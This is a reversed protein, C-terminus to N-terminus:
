DDDCGPVEIGAVGIYPIYGLDACQGEMLVASARVWEIGAPPIGPHPQLGSKRMIEAWLPMAGTAGTLGMPGNDDRGVWVVGAYRDGFGAFWSDRLDNTTGTKGPYHGSRRLMGAIARGTGSTTAGILAHTILFAAAPDFVGDMTLEHRVLGRGDATVAERITTLPVRFGGNALTQYIQAVERPSLDAAGLLLSPLPKPARAMGAQRLAAAVREVGLDMGLRVTALNYSRSLAELLTVTGHSRRDYNEPHWIKGGTQRLSLPGDDLRTLLTYRSPESLAAVYAFPKVLSGIPRRAALARNFGGSGAGRGGGVAVIEGSTYDVIVAASQLTGAKIKRGSELRELVSATAAIVAEQTDVELSTFIRWGSTALQQVSYTDELEARVLDMFAPYRERSWRPKDVVDLERNTAAALEQATLFGSEAMLKLVLDRRERARGPNRHPNYLSAGRVLAVLLAVQHVRLEGLPRGFYYEAATGFGHVATAGQQGLYVENVYARLIQEKGLRRELLMAMVAENVKRAVTREPSLFLNKVLQQTLTSGGQEIGGARLNVWLARLIGRVDIGRHTLFHRDEVAVVANRLAVPIGDPPVYVRNENSSPVMRGVLPPDVRLLDLQGGGPVDRLSSVGAGAFTALVRRAPQAGDWYAFERLYVEVRDGDRRYDGPIEVPTHSRYGSQTLRRELDSAAIPAGAYLETARAYVRGPLEWQLTALRSKVMLDLWMVYGTTLSTFILLLAIGPLICRQWPFKGPKWRRKRRRAM